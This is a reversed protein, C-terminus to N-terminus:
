KAVLAAPTEGGTAPDAESWHFSVRYYACCAGCDLCPSRLQPENTAASMSNGRAARGRLARARHIPLVRERATDTRANSLRARVAQSQRRSYLAGESAVHGREISQRQVSLGHRATRRGAVVYDVVRHRDAGATGPVQGRHRRARRAFT